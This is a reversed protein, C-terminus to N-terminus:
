IIHCSPLEFMEALNFTKSLRLYSDWNVEHPNDVYMQGRGIYREDENNLSLEGKREEKMEEIVM